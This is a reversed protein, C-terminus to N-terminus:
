CWQEKLHHPFTLAPSRRILEQELHAGTIWGNESAHALGGRFPEHHQAREPTLLPFEAVHKRSAEILGAISQEQRQRLAQQIFGVDIALGCGQFCADVAHTVCMQLFPCCGPGCAGFVALDPGM